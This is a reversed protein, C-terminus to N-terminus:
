FLPKFCRKFCVNLSPAVKDFSFSVFVYFSQFIVLFLCDSKIALTFISFMPTMLLYVVFKNLILPPSNLM